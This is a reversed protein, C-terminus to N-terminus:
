NYLNITNTAVIGATETRLRNKGLSIPTYNNEKALKIESSSFDGEPGILILYNNKNKLSMLPLKKDNGCHAILKKQDYDKIVFDKFSIMNNIQPLQYQLSQKISSILIKNLRDLKIIKRESRECILPTIEDIGIETAKELFWEFREINKTPAIGIHLHYNRQKTKATKNLVKLICNKVDAKTIIAKFLFGKGNTFFVIDNKKKRLIKVIHKSESKNLIIEDSIKDIYFLQM